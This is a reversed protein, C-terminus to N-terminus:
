PSGRKEDLTRMGGKELADKLEELTQGVNRMGLADKIKELEFEELKQDRYKIFATIDAEDAESVSDSISAFLESAYDENYKFGLVVCDASGYYNSVGMIKISSLIHGDYAVDYATGGPYNGGLKGSWSGDEFTLAIASFIDGCTIKVSVVNGTDSIIYEGSHDRESAAETVTSSGMYGTTTVGDPGKGSPYTVRITDIRDWGWIEIKEIAGTPAVDAVAVAGSDDSTGYPDSYIERDPYINSPVTSYLVPNLYQWADRYDLANLTMDRVYGNVTNFPETHHSNSGTNDIISDLGQQYYTDVYEGFEAIQTTLTNYLDDVAGDTWGWNLGYIVGDRLLCLYMNAFQAFLPLLLVENGESQFHPLQEEFNGLAVNYKESIYETNEASSDVSNIYDNLNNKLGELSETVQQYTYDDLKQDILEEVQDKIEDWVAQTDEPWLALTLCKLVIGVTPVKGALTYVLTRATNNLEATSM